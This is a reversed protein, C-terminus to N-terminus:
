QEGKIEGKYDPPYFIGEIGGIIAISDIKGERFMVRISDSSSSNTGQDVSDELAIYVSIANRRAILWQPRGDALEIQISKGKLHNYKKLVSDALTKVHANENIFIQNIKLSDLKLDMTTGSMENQEQWAYPNIRLKVLEDGILYTASDCTARVRDKYIHVQELAYARRPELGFYELINATILLTDSNETNIQKFMAHGTVRSYRSASTYIGSDGWIYVRNQKDLIFLDTEGSANREKFHYTFKEAYLSDNVGGIRVHGTCKAYRTATFYVIKDAWLKHHGDNILVNGVFVVQGRDEYFTAEDCFMRLTDQYAEINGTLIRIREGDVMKGISRDAHVLYLLSEGPFISSPILILLSSLVIFYIKNM